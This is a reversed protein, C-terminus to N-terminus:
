LAAGRVITFAKYKTAATLFNVRSALFCSSSACHEEQVIGPKLAHEKDVASLGPVISLVMEPSALLDRLARGGSKKGLSGTFRILV